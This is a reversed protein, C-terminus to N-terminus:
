VKKKPRTAVTDDLNSPNDNYSSQNKALTKTAYISHVKNLGNDDDADVSDGSGGGDGDGWDGDVGVGFGHASTGDDWLRTGNRRATLM